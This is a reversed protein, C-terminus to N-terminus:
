EIYVEPLEKSKEDEIRPLKRNIKTALKYADYAAFISISLNLIGGIEPHIWFFIASTIIELSLFVAGRPYKGLYFQGLGAILLSLVAALFPSKRKAM